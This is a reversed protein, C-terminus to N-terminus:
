ASEVEPLLKDIEKIVAEFAKIGKYKAKFSELERLATKYLIALKDEDHIVVAIPEYASTEEQKIHVFARTTEQKPSEENIVVINQIMTRAQEQRYLEAAKDNNWEFEDHLPANVPRSADVLSKATLKGDKSLEEMVGAAVSAPTKYFNTKWKYVM